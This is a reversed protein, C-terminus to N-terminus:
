KSWNASKSARPSAKRASTAPNGPSRRHAEGADILARDRAPPPRDVAPAEDGEGHQDAEAGNEGHRRARRDGLPDAVVAHMEYAPLEGQQRDGGEDHEEDRQLARPRDAAHGDDAAEEADHEDGQGEDDADLDLARPAPDIKGPQRQ